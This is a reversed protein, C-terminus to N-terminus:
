NCIRGSGSGADNPGSSFGTTAPLTGACDRTNQDGMFRFSLILMSMCISFFAQASPFQTIQGYLVVPVLCAALLVSALPRDKFRLVLAVCLGLCAVIRTYALITGFFGLEAVWKLSETEIWPGASGVSIGAMSHSGAGEGLLTPSVLAFDFIQSLVRDGTDESRSANDFRAFFSEFVAPFISSAVFYLGLTLFAILVVNRVGAGRRLLLQYVGYACLVVSFALVTGRAGSILTIIPASVLAIIALFKRHRRQHLVWLCAALSLPVYLTLGSPASFSGSARVISGNVFYAVDSGVEKNIWASKSSMVQAAALALEVPAYFIIVRTVKTLLDVGGHIWVAYALLIPALYSRLGVVAVKLSVVGSIVQIGCLIVLLLALLWLFIGSKRNRVRSFLVIVMLGAVMIADRAIYMIQETGPVWKRVAGEIIWLHVYILTLVSVFQPTGMLGHPLADIVNGWGSNRAVISTRSKLAAEKM